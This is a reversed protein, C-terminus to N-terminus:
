FLSKLVAFGKDDTRNRDGGGVGSLLKSGNLQERCLEDHYFIYYFLQMRLHRWPLVRFPLTTTVPDETNM